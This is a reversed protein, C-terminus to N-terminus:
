REPPVPQGEQKGVSHWRAGLDEPVSMGLLGLEGAKEVLSPMLGEEMKETRDIVPLVENNIFDECMQAIMKQEESWNEPIFIDSPNTKRILFEGGKIPKDSQQMKEKQILPLLLICFFFILNHM